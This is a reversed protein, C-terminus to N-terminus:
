FNFSEGRRVMASMVASANAIRIAKSATIIGVSILAAKIARKGATTEKGSLTKVPRKFSEKLSTATKTGWKAKAVKDHVDAASKTNFARAEMVKKGLKGSKKSDDFGKAAEEYAESYNRLKMAAGKNGGFRYDMRDRRNKSADINVKRDLKTKRAAARELQFTRGVASKSNNAKEMQSEYKSQLEGYRKKGAPTWSGDENQYRRVGWRQGKIGYHYLEDPLVPTAYCGM